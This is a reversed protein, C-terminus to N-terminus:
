DTEEDDIDSACLVKLCLINGLFRLQDIITDFIIIDKRCMPCTNTGKYIWKQICTRHYCHGCRLNSMTTCTNYEELCIPCIDDNPKQTNNSLEAM